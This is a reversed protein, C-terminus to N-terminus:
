SALAVPKLNYFVEKPTLFGLKKRPRNNLRNIVFNVHEDTITKFDRGKPFYQRVLGNANENSDREWAHYPHAFYFAAKLKEAITKHAAFETGNDSTITHVAHKVPGLLKIAADEVLEATRQPVKKLLTFMSKRETLSVIAQRCGKGIITDAEWDGIRLRSDVIAPRLEIGVRGTIPGRRSYKGYRKRRKKQCRLHKHLDGGTRKDAYIHQYIREHSISLGRERKLRGSVQEPSLDLRLLDEVLEWTEASIRPKANARRKTLAFEHAQKPRYGRGGRNRSLERSITSKHVGLMAAIESQTFHGTKKHAYIHYRQEQTLQAYRRM